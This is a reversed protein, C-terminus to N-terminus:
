ECQPPWHLTSEQSGGRTSCRVVEQHDADCNTAKRCTCLLPLIDPKFLNSRVVVQVSPLRVITTGFHGAVRIPKSFERGTSRRIPLNPRIEDEEDTGLKLWDFACFRLWILTLDLHPRLSASNTLFTVKSLLLVDLRHDESTSFLLYCYCFFKILHTLNRKRDWWCTLILIRTYM